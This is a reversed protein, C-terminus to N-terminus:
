LNYSPSSLVLFTRLFPDCVYCANSISWTMIKPTMQIQAPFYIAQTKLRRKRLLPKFQIPNPNVQGDVGAEHIISLSHLLFSEYIFVLRSSESSPGSCPTVQAPFMLRRPGCDGLNLRESQTLASYIIVMRFRVLLSASHAPSVRWTDSMVALSLPLM